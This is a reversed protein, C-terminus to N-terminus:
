TLSLIEDIRNDIIHVFGVGGSEFCTRRFAQLDQINDSIQCFDKVEKENKFLNLPSIFEEYDEIAIRM